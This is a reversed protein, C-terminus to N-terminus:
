PTALRWEGGVICISRSKRSATLRIYGANQLRHLQYLAVSRSSIGCAKMLEVLSPSNGDHHTKYTVIWQFIKQIDHVTRENTRKM